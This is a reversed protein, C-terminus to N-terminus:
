SGIMLLDRSELDLEKFKRDHHGEYAADVDILKSPIGYLLEKFFETDVKDMNNDTAFEVEICSIESGSIEWQYFAQVLLERAKKRTSPLFM